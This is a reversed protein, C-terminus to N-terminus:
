YDRNGLEFLDANHEGDEEQNEEELYIRHTTKRGRRKHEVVTWGEADELPNGYKPTHSEEEEPEEERTDVYWSQRGVYNPRYTVAEERRRYIAEARRRQEEREIQELRYQERQTELDEQEKWESALRVFAGTNVVPPKPDARLGPLSPFNEETPRVKRLREEERANAEAEKRDVEKKQERERWSMGSPHYNKRQSM